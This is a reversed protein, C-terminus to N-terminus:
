SLQLRGERVVVRRLARGRSARWRAGAAALVCLAVLATARVWPTGLNSTLVLAAAAAAAGLLDARHAALVLAGVAGVMAPVGYYAATMPDLVLRGAVVAVVVAWPGWAGNRWRLLLAVASGAGVAVLAQALRLAWPFLVTQPQLVHVLSRASVSWAFSLMEFPGALVFPVWLVALVGVGALMSRVLRPRAALLVVPAGLVGWVEFGASAAVVAAALAPRDRLALRGAIGWLLPVLAESPHGLPWTQTTGAVSLVATGVAALVSSRLDSSLRPRLVLATLFATIAAYATLVVTWAVMGATGLLHAIGFPVLEFPGAQLAPDDYIAGWRGTLLHEGGPGFWQYDIPLPSGSTWIFVTTLLIPLVVVTTAAAAPLPRALVSRVSM